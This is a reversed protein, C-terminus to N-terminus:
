LKARTRELAALEGKLAEVIQMAAADADVVSTDIRLDYDLWRDITGLQRSALGINRDGRKREREELVDAPAHVSVMLVRHGAVANVFLEAQRRATIANDIVLHRGLAALERVCAYYSAHLDQYPLGAIPLGDVIRRLASPPLATIISDISFNLFLSGAREQFARALTTKGASSTGNLVVITAM